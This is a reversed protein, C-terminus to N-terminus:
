LHRKWSPHIKCNILNHVLPTWGPLTGSVASSQLGMPSPLSFSSACFSCLPLYTSSPASPNTAYLVPGTLEITLHKKVIQTNVSEQIYKHAALLVHWSCTLSPLPHTFISALWQLWAPSCVARAQPAWEQFSLGRMWNWANAPRTPTGTSNTGAVANLVPTYTGWAQVTLQQLSHLIRADTTQPTVARQIQFLGTSKTGPTDAVPSVAM